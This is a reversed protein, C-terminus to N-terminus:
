VSSFFTTTNDTKFNFWMTQFLIEEFLNGPDSSCHQVRSWNYKLSNYLRDCLLLIPFWLLNSWILSNINIIVTTMECLHHCALVSVSSILALFTSQFGQIFSSFLSGLCLLCQAKFVTISFDQSLCQSSLHLMKRAGPPPLPLGVNPFKYASTSIVNSYLFSVASVLLANCCIAISM